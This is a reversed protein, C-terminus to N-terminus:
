LTPADEPLMTWLCGESLEFIGITGNLIRECVTAYAVIEREPTGCPNRVTITELQAYQDLNQHRPIMPQEGIEKETPAKHPSFELWFPVDKWNLFRPRCGSKCAAPSYQRALIYPIIILADPMGVKPSGTNRICVKSAINVTKM